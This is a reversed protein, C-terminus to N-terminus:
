VLRCVRSNKNLAVYTFLRFASMRSADAHVITIDLFHYVKCAKYVHRRLSCEANIDIQNQDDLVTVVMEKRDAPLPITM